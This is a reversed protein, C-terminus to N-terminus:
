PQRPEIHGPIIRGNEWHPAVYVGPESTGFGVMVVFLVIASLLVGVAALWPWPLARWGIEGRRATGGAFWMWGLYLATPLVLPLVITVLVRFM